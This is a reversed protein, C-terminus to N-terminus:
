ANRIAAVNEDSDEFGFDVLYGEIESNSLENVPRNENQAIKMASEFAQQNTM